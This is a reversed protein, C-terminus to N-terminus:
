IQPGQGGARRTIEVASHLATKNNIDTKFLDAGAKCLLQVAEFRGGRAALMLATNGTTGAWDLDAKLEVLVKVSELLGEFACLVLPSFAPHFPKHNYNVDVGTQTILLRVASVDHTKVAKLLQEGHRCYTWM